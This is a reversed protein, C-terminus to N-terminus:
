SRPVSYQLPRSGEFTPAAAQDAYPDFHTARLQQHYLHGPSRLTPLNLGCGSVVGLGLLLCGVFLTQYNITKM